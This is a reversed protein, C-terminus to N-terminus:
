RESTPELPLRIFPQEALEQPTAPLDPDGGTKQVVWELAKILGKRGSEGASELTHRLTPAVAPVVHRAVKWKWGPLLMRGVLDMGTNLALNVVGSKVLQMGPSPSLFRKALNMVQKGPDIENRLDGLDQRLQTEIVELRAKLAAKRAELTANSLNNKM